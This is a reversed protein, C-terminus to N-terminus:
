KCLLAAAARERDDSGTRPAGKGGVLHCQLASARPRGAESDAARAYLLNDAEHLLPLRLTYAGM